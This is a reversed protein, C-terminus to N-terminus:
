RHLLSQGIRERPPEEAAFAGRGGARLSSEMVALDRLARTVSVLMRVDREREPGSRGPLSLRLELERVQGEATRILRDALYVRQSFDEDDLRRSDRHLTEVASAAERVLEPANATIRSDSQINSLQQDLRVLEPPTTPRGACAALLVSALAASLATVPIRRNM